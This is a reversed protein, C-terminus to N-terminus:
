MYRKTDGIVKGTRTRMPSIYPQPQWTNTDYYRLDIQKDTLM